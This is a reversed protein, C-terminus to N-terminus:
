SIIGLGVVGVFAVFGVVAWADGTVLDNRDIETHEFTCPRVLVGDERADNLSCPCPKPELSPEHSCGFAKIWEFGAFTVFAAKRRAISTYNHVAEEIMLPTPPLVCARWNQLQSGCQSLQTRFLACREKRPNRATWTKYGSCYSKLRSVCAATMPKGLYFEDCAASGCTADSDPWDCPELGDCPARRRTATVVVHHRKAAEWAPSCGTHTATLAACCADSDVDEACAPLMTAGVHTMCEDDARALACAVTLLLLLLFRMTANILSTVVRWM